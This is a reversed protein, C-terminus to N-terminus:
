PKIPTRVYGYWFGATGTSTETEYIRGNFYSKLPLEVFILGVSSNQKVRKKEESGFFLL